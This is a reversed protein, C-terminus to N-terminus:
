PDAGVLTAPQPATRTVDVLAGITGGLFVGVIAGGGAGLLAGLAFAGPLSDCGDVCLVTTGALGMLIAGVVGVAAAGIWAGREAAFSRRAVTLQATGTATRAAQTVREFSWRDRLDAYRGDDFSVREVATRVVEGRATRLTAPAESIPHRVLDGAPVVYTYRVGCASQGALALCALFTLLAHRAVLRWRSLTSWRDVTAM